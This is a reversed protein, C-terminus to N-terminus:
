CSIESDHVMFAIAPVKLDGSLGGALERIREDDQQSAQEEYLSVWGKKVPLVRTDTVKRRALAASLAKDDTTRFHLNVCFLGMLPETASTQPSPLESFYLGRDVSSRLCANGTM